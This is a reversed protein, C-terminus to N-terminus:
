TVLWRRLAPLDYLKASDEELAEAVKPGPKIAPGILQGVGAELFHDGVLRAEQQPPPHEQEAEFQAAAPVQIVFQAIQFQTNQVVGVLQGLSLLGGQRNVFGEVMVQTM